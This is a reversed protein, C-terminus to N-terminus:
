DVECFRAPRGTARSSKGDRLAAVHVPEQGLKAMGKIRLTSTDVAVVDGSFPRAVVCLPADPAFSFGGSPRSQESSHAKFANTASAAEYRDFKWLADADVWGMSSLVTTGDPSSIV